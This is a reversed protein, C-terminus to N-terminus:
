KEGLAPLRLLILLHCGIIAMVVPIALVGLFQDPRVGAPFAVLSLLMTSLMMSGSTLGFAMAIAGWRLYLSAVLCLHIMLILNLGFWWAGPEGIWSTLNDYGGPLLLFSAAVAIAGPILGFLCGAIKSYVLHPISRPLMLLSALTQHRIEENFVRSACLICDVAFLPVVFIEYGYTVDHWRIERYEKPQDWPITAGVALGFLGLYLGCRILISFWGGAIFHFDKWSLALNWARGASFWRLRSTRKPVLSRNATEPAAEHSVYCFLCWSLLFFLLAAVSNSILQPTWEFQSGTETARYLETFVSIQSVWELIPSLTASWESWFPDSTYRISALGVLAFLPGFIYAVLWLVTMASADRNRRSLVSFLLGANALLATYALLAAYASYIQDPMLGGLTIALLTFPYQVALLLFVQFLRTTSKGLLLGLPSIGAMTMLGLTDEEKEESIASSFYSIGLLTVFAADLYIVTRFFQLGPAGRFRSQEQAFLMAIYIVLLLFLWSLHVWISRGDSRLSRFFLAFISRLM